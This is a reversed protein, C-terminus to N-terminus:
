ANISKCSTAVSVHGIPLFQILFDAVRFDPRLLARAARAKQAEWLLRLMGKQAVLALRRLIFDQAHFFRAPRNATRLMCFSLVRGM